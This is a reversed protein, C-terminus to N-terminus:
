ANNEKSKRRDLLRKHQLHIGVHGIGLVAAALVLWLSRRYIGLCFAALVPLTAGAVPVGCFSGYFHELTHGGRFYRVWFGEYLAMFFAALVLWWNWAPRPSPVGDSATLLLCTVLVEGSRELLLLFRSEGSPDYGRPRNKAWLFNPILLLALFIAGIYSFGFHVTLWSM